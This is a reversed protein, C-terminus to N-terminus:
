AATRPINFVPRQEEVIRKEIALRYTKPKLVTAYSVTFDRLDPQWFKDRIAELVRPNRHVEVGHRLQDASRAYLLNKREYLLYIGSKEPILEIPDTALHFGSKFSPMRFSADLHRGAKRISLIAWRYEFSSHGPVIGGAISDFRTALQPDCLIDDISAGNRYRLETAAFESAFAFDSYDISTKKSKLNRLLGSKRANFLTKNIKYDSGRLGIQRCKALFRANREPDAVYLDPSGDDTRVALFAERVGEFDIPEDREPVIAPKTPRVADLYRQGGVLSAIQGHGFNAPGAIESHLIASIAYHNIKIM